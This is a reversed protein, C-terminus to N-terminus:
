ENCNIVLKIIRTINISKTTRINISKMIRINVNILSNLELKLTHLHIFIFHVYSNLNFVVHNFM